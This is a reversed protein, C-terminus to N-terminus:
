VGALATDMDWPNGLSLIAEGPVLKDSNGLELVPLNEVDIKVLALDRSRDIGIISKPRYSQDNSFRISFDRHEGIVHFNTAIVGDASVVFGTGVGGKRGTRDVSEVVVVSPETLSALHEFDYANRKAWELKSLKPSNTETEIALVYSSPALLTVAIMSRCFKLMLYM